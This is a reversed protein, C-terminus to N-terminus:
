ASTTPRVGVRALPALADRIDAQPTSPPLAAVLMDLAKTADTDVDPMGHDALWNMHERTHAAIGDCDEYGVFALVVSLDLHAVLRGTEDPRTAFVGWQDARRYDGRVLAHRATFAAVYPDEPRMFRWVRLIPRAVRPRRHILGWIRGRWGSPFNPPIRKWGALQRGHEAAPLRFPDQRLAQRYAFLARRRHGLSAYCDGMQWRLGGRLLGGARRYHHLAAAADKAEWALNGRLRELAQRPAGNEAARQLYTRAREADGNKLLMGAHNLAVVWSSPFKGLWRESAVTAEAITAWKEQVGVFWQGVAWLAFGEDGLGDEFASAELDRLILRPDSGRQRGMADLMLTRGSLESNLCPDDSAPGILTIAAGPTPNAIARESLRILLVKAIDRFHRVATSEAVFQRVPLDGESIETRHARLSDPGIRKWWPLKIRDSYTSLEFQALGIEAESPGYFVQARWVSYDSAADGVGRVVLVIKELTLLRKASSESIPFPIRKVKVPGLDAIADDSEIFRALASLHSEATARGIASEGKFLSLIVVPGDGSTLYLWHAFTAISIVAVIGAPVALLPAGLVILSSGALLGVITLVIWTAQSAIFPRRILWLSAKTLASILPILGGPVRPHPDPQTM